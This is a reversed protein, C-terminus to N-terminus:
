TNINERGIATIFFGLALNMLVKLLVVGVKLFQRIQVKEQLHRGTGEALGIM